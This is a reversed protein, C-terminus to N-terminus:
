TYVLVLRSIEPIRSRHLVCWEKTTTKKWTEVTM